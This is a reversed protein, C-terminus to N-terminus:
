GGPGTGACLMFCHMQFQISPSFFLRSNSHLMLMFCLQKARNYSTYDVPLFYTLNLWGNLMFYIVNQELFFHAIM